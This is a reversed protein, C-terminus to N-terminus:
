AFLKRYEAEPTFQGDVYLRSPFQHFLRGRPSQKLVRQQVMRVSKGARTGSVIVDGGSDCELRADDLAGLKANTKYFWELAVSAGYYDAIQRLRADSLRLTAPGEGYVIDCAPGLTERITRATPRHVSLEPWAPIGQPFREAMRVFLRDVWRVYDDAIKPAQAEFAARLPANIAIQRERKLTALSVVQGDRRFRMTTKMGKALTRRVTIQCVLNGAAASAEKRGFKDAETDALLARAQAILADIDM